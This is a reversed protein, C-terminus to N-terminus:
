KKLRFVFRAGKECSADYFLDGGHIRAIRRAIALSIGQGKTHHNLDSVTFPAFLSHRIDSSVGPGSDSVAIKVDTGEDSCEIQVTSHSPSFNIGNEVVSSLAIDILEESLPLKIADCENMILRLSIDKREACTRKKDVVMSLVQEVSLEIKEVEQEQQLYLFLESREILGMLEEANATISAAFSKDEESLDQSQELLWANGLIGNLPTRTEHSILRLMNNKLCNLEEVYRLRMHIRVKARMEEIVFPKSLYDDAGAEYASLRDQILNKASVVIIRTQATAPNAKLRRCVDFGNMDPMMIDLLLLQPAFREIERECQAGSQLTRVEYDEGLVERVIENNVPEDDVALIRRLHKAGKLIDGSDCWIGM